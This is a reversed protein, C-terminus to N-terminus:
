TLAFPMGHDFLILPVFFAAFRDAGRMDYLGAGKAAKHLWMDHYHFGNPGAFLCDVRRLPVHLLGGLVAPDYEVEGLDDARWPVATEGDWRGLLAADGHSEHWEPATELMRQPDGDVFDAAAFPRFLAQALDRTALDDDFGLFGSRGVIEFGGPLPPPAEAVPGRRLRYPFSARASASAFPVTYDRAVLALVTRSRFAAFQRVYPGDPLALERLVPSAGRLDTGTAGYLSSSLAGHVVARAVTRAWGSVRPRRSGLHPTSLSYYHGWALVADDFQARLAPLAARVYLGGLSHAVFSLQVQDVAAAEDGGGGAEAPSPPVRFRGALFRAIEAALRAGGALVGDLTRGENARSVLIHLGHRPYQQFAFCLAEFDEATGRVGHCFVVLQLVRM